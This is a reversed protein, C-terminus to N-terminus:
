LLDFVGDSECDVRCFKTPVVTAKDGPWEEGFLASKPPSHGPSSAVVVITVEGVWVETKHVDHLKGILSVPSEQARKPFRVPSTSVV